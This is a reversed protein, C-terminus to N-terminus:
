CTFLGICAGDRGTEDLRARYYRTQDNHLTWESWGGSYHAQDSM